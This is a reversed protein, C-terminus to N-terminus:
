LDASMNQCNDCFVSSRQGIRLLKLTNGCNFCDLGARQYVKLAQSFYGPKGTSNVFDKLTTGGKEIAKVLVDKIASILLKWQAVTITNVPKLPHLGAAFLAETAYINGVGVVVKSNMIFQKIVTKKNIALKVMYEPNFEDSLPEPGLNKLLFHSAIDEVWLCSGFRRADNYRLIVNDSLVIDLHDHKKVLDQPTKLCLQGSMGLHMLLNGNKVKFILYKARRYVQEINKKYLIEHLNHAVPWRLSSNRIIIDEIRKGTVHPKLGNVITEVEPLEPM